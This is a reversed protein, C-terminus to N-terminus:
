ISGYGGGGPTKIIISDNKNVKLVERSKLETITGDAKKYLNKGKRGSEGGKVGYPAYVRRESVISVTAHKLFKIERIVGDGGQFRGKGGSGRRLTFRQLMVGPHRFELIEPDTMRTNTMHVQVGSSGTCGEMAGSGGAITEYYPSEEEVEFLLNNMTGQSAAAIGIAGLLVDVIRQSTEVNGSAVPVPYVPNLITGQPILIDVPKLCGSNLPIDKDILTRLVYLVASRTVSFPANLNDNEHQKGTGTFDIVARLTEPPNLGGEISIETKVPTGDDLYDKFTSYFKGSDELFIYLANKVSYEANGQIHGMYKIVTDLGYRSIVNLLEKAGKHCAAIQAKFDAIRESINRVPYTHNILIEKLEKERFIGNRILLFNDVLVGEEEIHSAFPPMSGPTTGGVDSHHGRAATFFILRGSESFVPCVVTMDSLHSGGKYPNNSLYLDGPYMTNRNEELISKVTDAMAGIHVPIHPANAVLSGGSDFVACSFDLREKMNVSYATNKLTLGMETAVGMFLNNFVELLVPDPKGTHNAVTDQTKTMMKMIIIGADDIGAKFDPDVVVTFENDIIIAPGDIEKLHHLTERMYVPAKKYGDTYYVDQYSASPRIKGSQKYEETYPIFFETSEQVDLRLNVVELTADTTSFGFLREYQEKFNRKVENFNEYKLTLFTDAGKPRLDIARQIIYIKDGKQKGALLQSEMKEFLNSLGEHMKGTYTELITLVAKKAPKSLGIGYASMVGSLPHIVITEIDLFSAISCAHQGGAGGFCVLAYNRIDLGKSVSIEKIAMAMKENAVRLFGNAIEQPTFATEMVKNVEDALLLFKEKVTISDLSSKGDAGFTKPFYESILRGTFLNADTVTLPGGFGYCAPGPDSGASEPGVIMKQGDFRLISGGGAAITVINLMEMQLPINGVVQEYIKEFEGDFRSVDTSTGGMDFGIAGKIGKERAIRAVAIVGGAPGSFIANKGRFSKPSSLAGNSQMFEVPIRGTVKKIEDLYHALVTSLYADVLTSQGRSVIKILNVTKHSLFVNSFGYDRLMKECRLEHDHNIWSHMFVVAITDVGVDSLKELSNSVIQSDFDKVVRGHCDIREDVEIVMFYVPFSKKICLRFIDPRNQYGIALLDSFGKTILLAVKDGKRELLANTAITTGFRIGQILNEPLHEDPQLALLRRIGEISADEYGSSRSLLKLTHFIGDPDLGIVDTFTGGRDVAFRWKKSGTM